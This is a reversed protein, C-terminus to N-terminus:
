AVSSLKVYIHARDFAFNCFGATHAANAEAQTEQYPEQHQPEQQCQASGVVAVYRKLWICGFAVYLLKM